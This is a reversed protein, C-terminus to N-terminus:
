HKGMLLITGLSGIAVGVLGWVLVPSTNFDKMKVLAASLQDNESTLKTNSDYLKQNLDDQKKIVDDAARLAAACKEHDIADCSVAQAHGM